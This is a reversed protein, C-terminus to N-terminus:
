NPISLILTILLKSAQSEHFQNLIDQVKGSSLGTYTKGWTKPSDEVLEIRRRIEVGLRFLISLLMRSLSFLESTDKAAM